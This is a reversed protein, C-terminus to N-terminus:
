RPEETATTTIATRLIAPVALRAQELVLVGDLEAEVLAQAVVALLADVATTLVTAARHADAQRLEVIREDVGADRCAKAWKVLREREADYMTVFVHPAAENWKAPNGTRAAIGGAEIAPFDEGDEDVATRDVAQDLQQVLRRLVAVNGAAEYVMELMATAPDVEIPRGLRTLEATAEGLALRRGAAAKAQPTRSGHGACVRHGPTPPKSCHKGTRKSHGRCAVAGSRTLHVFGCKAVVEVPDSSLAVRCGTPSPVAPHTDNM